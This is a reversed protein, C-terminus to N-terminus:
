SAGGTYEKTHAVERFIQLLIETPLGGNTIGPLASATPLVRVVRTISFQSPPKLYHRSASKARLDLDTPTYLKTSHNFRLSVSLTDSTLSHETELLIRVSDNGLLELYDTARLVVKGTAPPSPQTWAVESEYHVVEFVVVCKPLAPDHPHCDLESWTDDEDRSTHSTSDVQQIDWGRWKEECIESRCCLVICIASFRRRTETHFVVSLITQRIKSDFPEVHKSGEM